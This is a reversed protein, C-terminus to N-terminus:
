LGAERDYEIAAIVDELSLARYDSLIEEVTCGLEWMGLVADVTIRTGAIVPYGGQVSPDVLIRPHRDGPDPPRPRLGAPGEAAYFALADAVGEADVGPCCDCIEERTCGAEHLEVVRGVTTDTGAVMATGWRRAPDITIGPHAGPQPRTRDKM